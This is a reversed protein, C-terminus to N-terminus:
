VKTSIAIIEPLTLVLFHDKKSWKKIRGHGSMLCLPQNQGTGLFHIYFDFTSFKEVDIRAVDMFISIALEVQGRFFKLFFHDFFRSVKQVLFCIKSNEFIM